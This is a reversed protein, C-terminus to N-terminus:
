VGAIFDGWLLNACAWIGSGHAGSIGQVATINKAKQLVAKQAEEDVIEQLLYLRKRCKLQQNWQL